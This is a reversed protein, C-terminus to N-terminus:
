SEKGIESAKKNYLKEICRDIEEKILEDYEKSTGVYYRNEKYFKRIKRELKSRVIDYENGIYTIGKEELEQIRENGFDHVIGQEQDSFSIKFGKCRLYANLIEVNVNMMNEDDIGPLDKLKNISISKKALLRRSAPCSRYYKSLEALVEPEVGILFNTTEQIGFRVTAKPFLELGDKARKSKMPLNQENIASLACASFAKKSNQKLKMFYECGMVVGRMLPIQRGFKNIYVPKRNELWPYETYLNRLKDFLDVDDIQWFPPVHVYFGEDYVNDFFKYKREEELNYYYEKLKEGQIRNMIKYFGFFLEEKEELTKCEFKIKEAFRDGAYNIDLEHVQAPNTRNVVGLRNCQIGCYRKTGDPMIHYPAEEDPIIKSVVGKNGYLGSLKTGIGVTKVRKILVEIIFNNFIQDEMKWKFDPSIIMSGRKFAYNIDGSVRDKYKTILEKTINVMETWYRIQEGLYKKIQINCPIDPIEDYEKNSYIIVDEVIGTGGSSYYVVDSSFNIKRLSNDKFDYLSQNNYKRRKFCLINGRTEEGIDPFVKYNDKDGYLNGMIDNDNATIKKSESELSAFKKTESETMVIADETTNPNSTYMTLSNIGYGYNMDDDYSTSRWIITDKKIEDGVNYSDIVDTKYGYCFNETLDEIGKKEILEYRDDDKNYVVLTYMHNPNWSYRPVKAIVEYNHKVKNYASSLEGFINEYNTFCNPFDPNLLAMHAKIHSGFMVSRSSSVMSPRTLLEAGFPIDMHDYKNHAEDLGDRISLYNKNISAM